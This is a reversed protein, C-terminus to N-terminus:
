NIEGIRQLLRLITLKLLVFNMAIFYVLLNLVYFQFLFCFPLQIYLLMLLHFDFFAFNLLVPSAPLFFFFFFEEDQPNLFDFFLDDICTLDALLMERSVTKKGGPKPNLHPPHKSM